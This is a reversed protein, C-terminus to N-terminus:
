DLGDSFLSFENLHNLTPWVVLTFTIVNRSLLHLLMGETVKLVKMERILM